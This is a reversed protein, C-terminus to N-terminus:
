APSQARAQKFLCYHLSFHQPRAFNQILVACLIGFEYAVNSTTVFSVRRSAVGVLEEEEEFFDHEDFLLLVEAVNSAKLSTVLAHGVLRKLGAIDFRHAARFLDHKNKGPDAIINQSSRTLKLLALSYSVCM